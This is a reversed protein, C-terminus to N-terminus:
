SKRAYNKEMLYQGLISWYYASSKLNHRKVWSAVQEKTKFKKKDFRYSQVVASGEQGKPPKKLRGIIISVGGKLEKTKFSDEKFLDPDKVRYRFQNETSEIQPM